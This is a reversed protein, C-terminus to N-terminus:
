LFGFRPNYLGRLDQKLNSIPDGRKTEVLEPCNQALWEYFRSVGEETREELRVRNVFQRRVENARDHCTTPMFRLSMETPIPVCVLVEGISETRTGVM